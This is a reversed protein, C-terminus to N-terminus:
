HRFGSHGGNNRQKNLLAAHIDDAVKEVGGLVAGNLNITNHHHVVTGAGVLSAASRASAFVADPVAAAASSQGQGGYLTGLLRELARNLDDFKKATTDVQVGEIFAALRAGLRDIVDTMREQLARLRETAKELEDGFESGAIDDATDKAIADIADEVDNFADIMDAGGAILADMFPLADPGQSALDALLSADLGMEQLKKLSAAFAQNKGLVDQLFGQMEEPSLGAPGMAVLDARLGELEAQMGALRESDTESAIASELDAIQRRLDDEAQSASEFESLLGDVLEDGTTFGERIAGRFERMKARIDGLHDRSDELLKDFHRQRETIQRALERAAAVNERPLGNEIADRVLQSARYMARELRSFQRELFNFGTMSGGGRGGRPAADGVAFGPPLTWGGTHMRNLMSLTRTGIKQAARRQIVFEGAQLIALQEDSHLGTGGSHMRTIAGGRHHTPVQSGERSVIISIRKETPLGMLGRRIDEILDLADDAGLVEIATRIQKPTLNLTNIYERVARRSAGAEVAQDMLESIHERVARAGRDLSGTQEAVAAGHEIAADAAAVIRERLTRGAESNENLGRVGALLQNTLKGEEDTQHTLEKNIAQVADLWRLNAKEVDLETGALGDLAERLQEAMTAAEELEGGLEDIPPVAGAAADGAADTGEASDGMAEAQRLASATAADLEGGLPGVADLLAQAAAAEENIPVVGRGAEGAVAGFTDVTGQLGVTLERWAPGGEVVADVVTDLGIGLRQAAELAGDQELRQAVLARVNEGLAGSDAKVAATLEEVRARTEAARQAWITIGATVAAIGITWPNIAKAAFRMSGAFLGGQINAEALSAKVLAIRPLLLFTAGSVLAMAAAVGALTLAIAKAPGPLTGFLDAVDGVAGVVAAIAPLLLQGFSIAVDNIRNQALQMQSATTEFRKGAEETLATNEEWATSGLEISERFLDGAGAAQTLTQTTRIGSLGLAELTGFVNQGAADMQGIGEIFTVMAGAADREFAKAFQEGTMGAVAAFADLKEGGTQVAKEIEIFVRSIASGGMEAEIGVSSLANAFGLVESETLGVIQGAGAIRMAMAVIDAETSAGANGLAVITAGMRDFQDQPTQMVNAIRAMATAAEDGVIDTTVGLKAVTETFGLISSKEVGLQGAAEGIRNLENVNVPITKALDRMGQELVAFEAESADVTKRVGAFSSEFAMAADAAAKMAFGIAAGIGLAALGLTNFAQQHLHASKLASDGFARTSATAAAMKAQYQSVLAELVVRVSKTAM